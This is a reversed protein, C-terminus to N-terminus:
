ACAWHSAGAGGDYLEAAKIIHIRREARTDAPHPVGHLGADIQFPGSHGGPSLAFWRQEGYYGNTECRIIYGPIPSWRLTPEGFFYPTYRDRFQIREQWRKYGQRAQASAERMLRHVRDGRACRRYHRARDIQWEARPDDDYADEREWSRAILREYDRLGHKHPHGHCKNVTLSDNATRPGAGIGDAAMGVVAALFLSALVLLILAFKEWPKM